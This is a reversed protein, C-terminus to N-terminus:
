AGAFLGAVWQSAIQQKVVIQEKSPMKDHFLLNNLRENISLANTIQWSDLNPDAVVMVRQRHGILWNLIIHNVHEDRFSYGCVQLEETVELRSRFAFLLDLYPGKVTLKNGAGFIMCPEEYHAIQSNPIVGVPSLRWDRSGHLKALCIKSDSSFVVNPNDACIGLDIPIGLCKAATEIVDDYNLSAIWLPTRESHRLLPLFYSVHEENEVKTLSLVQQLVFAAAEVFISESSGSAAVLATHLEERVKRMGHFVESRDGSHSIANELAHCVSDTAEQLGPRDAAAVTHSWSGVFPGLISKHREGLLKLIAYLSEVDVKGFPEGTISRHFHLGGIATEIATRIKNNKKSNDYILEAMQLAAPIQSEISAGAGLLFTTIM